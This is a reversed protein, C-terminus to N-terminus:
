CAPCYLHALESMRGCLRMVCLECSSETMAHPASCEELAMHCLWESLSGAAPQAWESTPCRPLQHLSCPMIPLCVAIPCLLQSPAKAAQPESLRALPHTDRAPCQNLSLLLVSPMCRSHVPQQCHYLLLLPISWGVAGATSPHVASASM